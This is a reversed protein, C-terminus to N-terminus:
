PSKIFTMMGGPSGSDTPAGNALNLQRNYLPFGNPLAGSGAPVSAIADETAGAPITEADADFPHGLPAADRAIVHEHMGLLMMTTNDYGANVYRLLVRQGAAAHVPDTQPYAKGNILWYTAQYNHMDFSDPHANFGPDIASLVLPAEVDYASAPDDYAQGSTNPRVILAGFLGMATQREDDGVSQYLYTGPSTATFTVTATGGAPVEPTSAPDINMGPVEISITRGGPLANTVNLNVLDNENVDLVPGGPVTATGAVDSCDAASGKQVFGWIPATVGGPLTVTGDTACLDIQPDNAAPASATSPHIPAAGAAITAVARTPTREVSGSTGESRSPLGRAAATVAILSAATLIAVIQPIRRNNPRRM